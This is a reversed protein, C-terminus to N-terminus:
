GAKGRGVPPMFLLCTDAPVRIFTWLSRFACDQFARQQWGLPSVVSLTKQEMSLGNAHLKNQKGSMLSPPRVKRASHSDDPIHFVSHDTSVFALVLQWKAVFDATLWSDPYHQPEDRWCPQWNLDGNHSLLFLFSFILKVYILITNSKNKRNEM